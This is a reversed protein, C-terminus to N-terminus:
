SLLLHSVESCPPLATEGARMMWSLIQHGPGEGASHFTIKLFKKQFPALDKAQYGLWHILSCLFPEKRGQSLHIRYGAAESM